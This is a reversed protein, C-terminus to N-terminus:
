AWIRPKRPANILSPKKHTPQILLLLPTLLLPRQFVRSNLLVNSSEHFKGQQAEPDERLDFYKEEFEASMPIIQGGGHENVWQRIKPLSKHGKRIFSKQSMNVVYVQPKTTLLQWDKICEVEALNFDDGTFVPTSSELLKKVKDYSNQFTEGLPPEVAKAMGKEKRVKDKETNVVRDLTSLDKLCLEQQITDLDRIPDVSDDVHIVEDSEFTRILHYIGDVASIHSLFANGLGAGESAGRILGAIDVVKM